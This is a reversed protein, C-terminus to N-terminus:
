DGVVVEVRDRDIRFTRRSLGAVIKSPKQRVHTNLGQHDLRDDVRHLATMTDFSSRSLRSTCKM